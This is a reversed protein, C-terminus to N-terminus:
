DLCFAQRQNATSLFERVGLQHVGPIINLCYHEWDIFPLGVPSLPRGPLMTRKGPGTGSQLKTSDVAACVEGEAPRPM